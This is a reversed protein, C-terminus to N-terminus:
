QKWVVYDHNHSEQSRKLEEHELVPEAKEQLVRVLKSM